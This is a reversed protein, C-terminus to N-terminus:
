FGICLGRFGSCARVREPSTRKDRTELTKKWASHEHALGGGEADDRKHEAINNWEGDNNQWRTDYRIMHAYMYIYIYVSIYM